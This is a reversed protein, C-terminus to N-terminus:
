GNWKYHGGLYLIYQALEKEEVNFAETLTTLVELPPLAIYEDRLAEKYGPNRKVWQRRYTPNRKAWEKQYCSKCMQKAFVQAGCACAAM